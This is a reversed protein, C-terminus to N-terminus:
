RARPHARMFFRVPGQSWFKRLDIKFTILTDSAINLNEVHHFENSTRANWLKPCLKWLGIYSTALEVSIFIDLNRNDFQM